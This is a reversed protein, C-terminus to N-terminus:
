GERKKARSLAVAMEEIKAGRDPANLIGSAAGGAHAGEQIARYIDEGTTIGAGQNILINKNVSKVAENTARIYDDSSTVGTGILSTPECIMVDPGLEAAARCQAPTDACVFTLLELEDARRMAMDLECLTLPKEAHNLFVGEAGAAKLGEPLVAGMGRGQVIGDMHQAIVILGETAEKIKAIDVAQATYVIDIDYKKGIRDATKALEVAEEGYIYSKTNVILFPVRIKRKM